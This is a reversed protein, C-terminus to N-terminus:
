SEGHHEIRLNQPHIVEDSSQEAQRHADLFIEIQSKSASGTHMRYKAAFKDPFVGQWSQEHSQHIAEIVAQVPYKSWATLKAVAGRPTYRKHGWTKRSELHFLWHERFEEGGLAEPLGISELDTAPQKPKREKAM